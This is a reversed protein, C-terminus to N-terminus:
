RRRSLLCSRRSRSRPSPQLRYSCTNAGVDFIVEAEKFVDNWCNLIERGSFRHWPFLLAAESVRDSRAANKTLTMGYINTVAMAPEAMPRIHDDAKGVGGAQAPMFGIKPHRTM